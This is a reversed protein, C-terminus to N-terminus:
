SESSRSLLENYTQRHAARDSAASDDPTAEHFQFGQNALAGNAADRYEGPVPIEHKVGNAMELTYKQTTVQHDIPM